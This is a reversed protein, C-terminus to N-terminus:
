LLTVGNVSRIILKGNEPTFTVNRGYDSGCDEGVIKLGLKALEERAATVNHEGIHFGAASKFMKSGGCIKAAIRGKGGIEELVKEHLAPIAINAYKAPRSSKQASGKPLMVHALGGTKTREHYLAVAVCSGLGLITLVEPQRCIMMEAIGVNRKKM